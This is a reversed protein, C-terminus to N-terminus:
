LGVNWDRNFLEFQSALGGGFHVPVVPSGGPLGGREVVWKAWGRLGLPLTPLEPVRELPVWVPPPIHPRESRLAEDSSLLRAYCCCIELSMAPRIAPASGTGVAGDVAPDQTIFAVGLPEIEAGAEELAERKLADQITEGPELAGGPANWLRQAAGDAEWPPTLLISGDRVILAAVRVYTFARRAV